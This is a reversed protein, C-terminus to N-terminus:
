EAVIARAGAGGEAGPVAVREDADDRGGAAPDLEEGDLRAVSPAADGGLQELARGALRQAHHIMGAVIQRGADVAAIEVPACKKGRAAEALEADDLVDPRREGFRQTRNVYGAVVDM